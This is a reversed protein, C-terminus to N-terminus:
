HVYYVIFLKHMRVHIINHGEHITAKCTYWALTIFLWVCFFGEKQPSQGFCITGGFNVISQLLVTPNKHRYFSVGKGRSIYIEM